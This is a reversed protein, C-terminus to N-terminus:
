ENANYPEEFFLDKTVFIRIESGIPIEISPPQYYQDYVRSAGETSLDATTQNVVDESLSDSDKDRIYNSSSNLFSGFLIYFMNSAVHHDTNGPLGSIGQKGIGSAAKSLDISRGNSLKIESFEVGIREQHMKVPGKYRGIFVAGQPILLYDGSPSDYIGRMVRAAINGPLSDSSGGMLTVAPIVSGAQILYKTEPKRISVTLKKKEPEISKDIGFSIGSAAGEEIAKDTKSPKKPQIKRSKPPIYKPAPPLKQSSNRKQKELEEYAKKWKEAEKKAEEIGQNIGGSEEHNIELDAYTMPLKRDFSKPLEGSPLELEVRGAKREYSLLPNIILYCVLGVMFAALLLLRTINLDNKAM